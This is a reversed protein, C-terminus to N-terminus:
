GGNATLLRSLWRPLSCGSEIECLKLDREAYRNFTRWRMWKPKVPEGALGSEYDGLRRRIAWRRAQIRALGSVRQSAYTPLPRIGTRHCYKEVGHFLYLKRARRKTYPCHLYWMRGGYPLPRSAIRIVCVVKRCEGFIDRSYSLVIEGSTEGLTGSYGSSAFEEGDSLWRLVGRKSCGTRLWGGDFLSKIDLCLASELHPRWGNGSM